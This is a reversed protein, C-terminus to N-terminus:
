CNVNPGASINFTLTASINGAAYYQPTVVFIADFIWADTTGRPEAGNSLRPGSILLTNTSVDTLDSPYQARGASNLTINSSPDNQFPSYFTHTNCQRSQNGMARWNNMGFGIDSRQLANPNANSTGSYTVTLKYPNKSRIAIPVIVKVFPNINSPSVEGFNITVVLDGMVSSSGTVSGNRAGVITPAGGSSIDFAQASVSGLCGLSIAIVVIFRM